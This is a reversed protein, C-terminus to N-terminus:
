RFPELKFEFRYLGGSKNTFDFVRSTNNFDVRYTKGTQVLLTPTPLPGTDPGLYFATTGAGSGRSAGPAKNGMGGNGSIQGNLIETNRLYTGSSQSVSYAVSLKGKADLEAQSFQITASPARARAVLLAIGLGCFLLAVFILVIIKEERKM